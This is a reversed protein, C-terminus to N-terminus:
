KKRYSGISMGVGRKKSRPSSRTSAKRKAPNSGRREAATQGAATRRKVRHDQTGVINM